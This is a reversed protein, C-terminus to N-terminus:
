KLGVEDILSKHIKNLLAKQGKENKDLRSIYTAGKGDFGQAVTMAHIEDSSSQIDWATWGGGSLSKSRYILKNIYIYYLIPDNYDFASNQKNTAYERYKYTYENPYTIVKLMGKKEGQTEIYADTIYAMPPNDMYPTNLTYSHYFQAMTGSVNECRTSLYTTSGGAMNDVSNIYEANTLEYEKRVDDENDSQSFDNELETSSLKFYIKDVDCGCIWEFAIGTSLTAVINPRATMCGVQSLDLACSYDGSLRESVSIIGKLDEENTNDHTTRIYVYQIGSGKVAGRNQCLPRWKSGDWAEIWEPGRIEWELNSRIHLSDVLGAKGGLYIRTKHNRIDLYKGTKVLTGHVKVKINVTKKGDLTRVVLKAENELLNNDTSVNITVLQNNRGSNPTVNLWNVDSSITWETNSELDFTQSEGDADFTIQTTSTTLLSSTDDECASLVFLMILSYFINRNM